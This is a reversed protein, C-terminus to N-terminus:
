FALDVTRLLLGAPMMSQPPVQLAVNSLPAETVSVASGVVPVANAPQVPAHEPVPDHVTIM